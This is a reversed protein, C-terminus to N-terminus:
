QLSSKLWPHDNFDQLFIYLRFGTMLWYAQNDARNRIVKMSM